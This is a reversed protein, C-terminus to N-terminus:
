GGNPELLQPNLLDQDDLSLSLQAADWAVAIMGSESDTM